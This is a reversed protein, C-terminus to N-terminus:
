RGAGLLTEAMPRVLAGFVSGAPKGQAIRRLRAIQEASLAASALLWLLDGIGGAGPSPSSHRWCTQEASSWSFSQRGGDGAFRSSASVRALGEQEAPSCGSCRKSCGTATRLGARARPCVPFRVPWPDSEEFANVIAYVLAGPLSGVPETRLFAL